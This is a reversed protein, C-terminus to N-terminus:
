GFVDLQRAKVERVLCGLT